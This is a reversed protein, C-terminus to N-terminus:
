VVGVRDLSEKASLKAMVAGLVTVTGGTPRQLRNILRVLTSKGAGSYGVIGYIEGRNVELDVHDVAHVEQKKEEFLVDVDQLTIIPADSM